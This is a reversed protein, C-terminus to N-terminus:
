RGIVPHLLGVPHGQGPKQQIPESAPEERVAVAATIKRLHEANGPRHTYGDHLAAEAAGWDPVADSPNPQQAEIAADAQIGIENETKELKKRM